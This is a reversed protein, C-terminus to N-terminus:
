QESDKYYNIKAMVNRGTATGSSSVNRGAKLTVKLPIKM